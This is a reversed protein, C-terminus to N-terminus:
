SREEPPPSIVELCCDSFHHHQNDFDNSGASGLLIMPTAVFFDAKEKEIKKSEKEFELECESHGEIAFVTQTYSSVIPLLLDGFVITGILLFLISKSIGCNM